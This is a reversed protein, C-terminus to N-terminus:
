VFEINELIHQLVVIAREKGRGVWSQPWKFFFRNHVGLVFASYRIENTVQPIFSPLPGLECSKVSPKYRPHDRVLLEGFHWVCKNMVRRLALPSLHRINASHLTRRRVSHRRFHVYSIKLVEFNRPGQPCPSWQAGRFCSGWCSTSAHFIQMHKQNYYFPTRNVFGFSYSLNSTVSIFGFSSMLTEFCTAAQERCSRIEQIFARPGRLTRLSKQRADRWCGEHWRASFGVDRQGPGSGAALEGGFSQSPM